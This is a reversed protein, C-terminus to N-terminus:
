ANHLMTYFCFWSIPTPCLHHVILIRMTDERQPSRLQLQHQHQYLGLSRATQAELSTSDPPVLEALQIVVEREEQEGIDTVGVAILCRVMGVAADADEKVPVPNLLRTHGWEDGTQGPEYEYETDPEARSPSSRKPLFSYDLSPNPHCSHRLNTVQVRDSGACVIVLARARPCRPRIINKSEQAYKPEMPDRKGNRSAVVSILEPM